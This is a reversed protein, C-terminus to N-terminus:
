ASNFLATPNQSSVGTSEVGVNGAVIWAGTQRALQSLGDHFLPDGNYFPAPSEPWVILSPKPQDPSTQVRSVNELDTLTQLFYERTWQRSDLVPVNEQVLVASHDTPFAPVPIWRAVQLLVAAAFAAFLLPARKGRRVAWAAAFATNVIMIELSIGYVGTFRAMRVLPINDVQSIGLLDWPFGSIRTRALEVAVWLFPALVLAARISKRAVLAAFMGFFGLYLGLYLCFLLLLGAAGLAGIGGYQKMTNFVWYCNGAYWLIGCLYGLVFGQRPTAPLLRVNGEFQLTEPRRTRLLAVLLPAVAIWSLLYLNPLPFILVQLIASLITLLWARKDIGLM